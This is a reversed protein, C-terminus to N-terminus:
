TIEREFSSLTFFPNEWKDDVKGGIAYIYRGFPLYNLLGHAILFVFLM